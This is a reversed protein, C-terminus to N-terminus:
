KACDRERKTWHDIPNKKLFLNILVESKQRDDM